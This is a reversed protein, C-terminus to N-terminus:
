SKHPQWVPAVRSFALVKSNASKSGYAIAYVQGRANPNYDVLYSGDTTFSPAYVGNLCDSGAGSASVVCTLDANGGNVYFYISRGSPTWNLRYAGCRTGIKGPPNVVLRTLPKNKDLSGRSLDYITLGKPELVALKNGFPSLSAAACNNDFPLDFTNLPTGDPAVITNQGILLRNSEEFWQPALTQYEESLITPAQGNRKKLNILSPKGSKLGDKTKLPGALYAISLDNPSWVPSMGEAIFELKSHNLENVNFQYIAM